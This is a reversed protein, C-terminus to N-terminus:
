YRRAIREKSLKGKGLLNRKKLWARMEGLTPEEETPAVRV